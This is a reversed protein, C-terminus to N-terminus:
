YNKYDEPFNLSNIAWEGHLNVKYKDYAKAADSKEIFTGLNVKEGNVHISARWNKRNKSVGYYGSTNNRNLKRNAANKVSFNNDTTRLNKRCNNLPDGDVHDINAQDLLLCHLRLTTDVGNIVVSTKVCSIANYWTFLKVKEYDEKNIYTVYGNKLKLCCKNRTFYVENGIRNGIKIIGRYTEIMKM